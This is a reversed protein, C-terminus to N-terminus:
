GLPGGIASTTRLSSPSRDPLFPTDDDRYLRRRRESGFGVPRATIGIGVNDSVNDVDFGVTVTWQPFRRSLDISFRQFEDRDLDWTTNVEAAYKRTLEYRAGARLRQADFGELSRYQVFTSFGMGHDVALGAAVRATRENEIDHILDGTLSVADTVRWVLDGQFHEGLNSREPRSEFFFGLPSDIPADESNWVYHTEIVLVDTTYRGREGFPAGRKTQWTQRAGVRVVTGDALSEIQPDYVPLLSPDITSAGQWLTVSPEIIHRIGDLDFLDSQVGTDTKVISTSVRAGVASWLRYSEQDDNAPGRFDEFDNDYATFRGVAFPVVNLDGITMPLELEHRTDFRGVTGEDFGQARLRDSVRDGPALGFAADARENTDLGFERLKPEHFNFRVLGANAEAFYSFPGLDQATRAYRLEPLRETQYGQAQLLDENPIFDNLSGRVELGILENARLRRAYLSNTFERRTEAEDDFFADIFTEDSIYSTELFLTWEDNVRWANEATVVGRFEGDQDLEAGSSLEDSGSDYISYAFLGGRVGPRSWSIDLGLAPGREPFGDVLLEANTGEREPTGTLAFLDWRTRIANDGALNEYRLDTLASREISGSLRPVGITKHGGVNFTVNEAEIYPGTLESGVLGFGGGPAQGGDGGGAGDGGGTGGSSPVRITVDTAGISFHPEAFAVNALTVDSARWETLSLQRIESARAYVPISQRQDIASFVGDLVIAGDTAPDYYVQSGRLTYSGDTAVVDGELYVGTVDGVSASLTQGSAESEADLFVVVRQATLQLARDVLPNAPTATVAAGGTLVIMRENNDLLTSTTGASFALRRRAPPTPETREYAPPATRTDVIRQPQRDVRTSPLLRANGTGELQAVPADANVRLPDGPAVGEGMAVRVPEEGPRTPLEFVTRESVRRERGAIQDLHRGFRAEADRLFGSAPASREFLRDARLVPADTILVGTVLLRDADQALGPTGGPTTVRDFYAAVQYANSAEGTAPDVIAIPEFWLSARDARFAFPGLEVTCDRDLLLRRTSGVRWSWARAAELTIGGLRPRVPLNMGEFADGRFAPLREAILDPDSSEVQAAGLPTLGGATVLLALALPLAHAPHVDTHTRM